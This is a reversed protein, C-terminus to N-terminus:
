TVSFLRCILIRVEQTGNAVDRSIVYNVLVDIASPLRPASLSVSSLTAVFMAVILVKSVEM